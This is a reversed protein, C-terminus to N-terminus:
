ARALSQYLDLLMAGHREATYEREVKARAARGLAAVDKDSLAMFRRLVEALAAVNGPEFLFGNVGDEIMEPIGGIRAGIVPKGAAFAELLSLPANEYWESPMVVGRAGALTERLREGSLYGVFEVGLGAERAQRALAEREPGDGAIRLPVETRVLGYAEILTKVGKEKSLRGLFLLYRGPGAPEPVGSLDIFNPIHVIKGADWGYTVCNDRLFRSPAVFHRVSAYKGFRHNIWSELAYVASAPYSGKHCRTLVAHHFHKGRCRECVAGGNLMLYSPCVLKLDHLTMVVPIGAEKLEDLVSLSLRGYINHAHAVDPRFENLLEKLGRRAARSYVLEKVCRVSELSLGLRETDLPPPFFRDFETPENKEHERAYVAVQHGAEKLLTMEDFFVKESGGRLYNFNNLFLIKV